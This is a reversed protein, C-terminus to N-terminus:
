TTPVDERYVVADLGVCGYVVEALVTWPMGARGERGRMPSEAGAMVAM